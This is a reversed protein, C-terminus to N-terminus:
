LLNPETEEPGLETKYIYWSPIQKEQTLRVTRDMKEAFANVAEMVGPHTADYDHGALIGNPTLIGWWAEIDLEVDLQEHSGDIYVFGLHKKVWWPMGEIVNPSCGRVIRARGDFGALNHVAMLLDPLRDDIGMWEYSVYPDLCFLHDGKYLSMFQKAYVGQDTGVEVAIRIDRQNCLSAFM